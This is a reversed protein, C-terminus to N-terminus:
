KIKIFKLVQNETKGTIRLFYTGNESINIKDVELNLGGDEFKLVNMFLLKGTRDFIEILNEESNLHNTKLHIVDKVPNPFLQISPASEFKVVEIHSYEFSGDLDVIKLRYYNLGSKPNIDNYNYQQAITTNGASSRKGITEFSFGNTSREIEFHSTNRETATEWQMYVQTSQQVAQFKTLEVPLANLASISGLTFKQNGWPPPDSVVLSSTVTGTNTNGTTFSNGYNEWIESGSTEDLRAVILDDVETIGETIGESWHITVNVNSGANKDIEWYNNGNINNISGVLQNGWPPPDSFYEAKIESSSNSVESIAIPAYNSSTGIPFTFGTNDTRGLKVLPGEIYSSDSGGSIVAEDEIYLMATESTIINGKTLILSDKVRLEGQLVLPSSSTNKLSLNTILLSDNGSSGLKTPPIVQPTSGNFILKSTNDMNLAGYNTPRQFAKGLILVSEDDMFIQAANDSVASMAINGKIEVIADPGSSALMVMKGSATSNLNVNGNVTLSGSKTGAGFACFGTGGSNTLTVNGNVQFHSLSSTSGVLFNEGATMNMVLNGIITLKTSGLLVFKFEKGGHCSLYTHGLISLKADSELIIEDNGEGSDADNYNYTFNNNVTMIASGLLHLTLKKSQNNGVVREFIANGNVNFNVSGQVILEVNNNFNYAKVELDNSITFSINGEVTLSSNDSTNNIELRSITVNGANNDVIVDFGDIVVIDLPGPVSNQDWTSNLHWDSSAIATYVTAKSLIPLLLFTLAFILQHTYLKM